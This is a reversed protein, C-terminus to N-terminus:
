AGIVVAATKARSKVGRAIPTLCRQVIPIEPEKGPGIECKNPLLGGFLHSCRWSACLTSPPADKLNLSAINPGTKWTHKSPKSKWLPQESHLPRQCSPLFVPQFWPTFHEFDLPQQPSQLVAMIACTDVPDMSDAHLSKWGKRVVGCNGGVVWM